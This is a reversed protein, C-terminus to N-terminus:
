FQLRRVTNPAVVLYHHLFSFFNIRFFRSLSNVVFVMIVVRDWGLRCQTVEM